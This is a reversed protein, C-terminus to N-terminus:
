FLSGDEHKSFEAQGTEFLRSHSANSHTFYFTVFMYVCERDIADRVVVRICFRVTNYYASCGSGMGWVKNPRENSWTFIFPCTNGDFGDPLRRM